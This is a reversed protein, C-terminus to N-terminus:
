KVGSPSAILRSLAARDLIGACRTDAPDALVAAPRGPDGFGDLVLGAASLDHHRTYGNVVVATALGAATSSLVGEHSDEVAAATRPTAGLKELATTYAEPDPKRGAVEDGCVVADFTFDGLLEDLLQEVWGRSGTTAVALVIGAAALEGLLRRVGPRADLRGEGIMSSLIATKRQHLGPALRDREDEAVGHAALYGAIRRQGGTTRLLGGYEEVSWRYPLGFEEFALNFAM